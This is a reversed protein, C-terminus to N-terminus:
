DAANRIALATQYVLNRPAAYIKTALSVAKKLPMELMMLSLSRRLETMDASRDALESGSVLLVFEGKQRAPDEKLWSIVREASGLLFTEHIKTLEKALGIQRDAPLLEAIDTLTDLIRHPAEYFVSTRTQDLCAEIRERRASRRSPFFGEFIWSGSLRGSISLAAIIASPGPVAKVELGRQRVVEVLRSGPDSIGPTGADTIVAIAEGGAIREALKDAIEGENHEHMALLPTNISYQALLKRSHRTDEAAIVNASGLIELARQTIDGLNGIPTAVVYLAPSLGAGKAGEISNVM